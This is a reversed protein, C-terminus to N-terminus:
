LLNIGKKTKLLNKKIPQFMDQGEVIDRNEFQLRENSLITIDNVGKTFSEKIGSNVYGVKEILLNKLNSLIKTTVLYSVANPDNNTDKTDTVIKQIDRFRSEQETIVNNIAKNFGELVSERMISGRKETLLHAYERIISTGPEVQFVYVLDLYNTWMEMQIFGKLDYYTKDDLYPVSKTPNKNM